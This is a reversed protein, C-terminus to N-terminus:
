QMMVMDRAWVHWPMENILDNHNCPDNSKWRGDELYNWQIMKGLDSPHQVEARIPYNYGGGESYVQNTRLIRAKRGDRTCVPKTPDFSM